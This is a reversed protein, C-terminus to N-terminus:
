VTIIDIDVALAGGMYLRHSRDWCGAVCTHWFDDMKQRGNFHVLIPSSPPNRLAVGVRHDITKLKDRPHYKDPSKCPNAPGSTPCNFLCYFFDAFYDM